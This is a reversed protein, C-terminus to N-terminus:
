SGFLALRKMCIEFHDSGRGAPTIGDPLSLSYNIQKRECQECWSALRSIRRETDGAGASDQWSLRVDHSSKTSDFERTQLGLGRAASKWAISSPRDGPQYSRLSAFEGENARKSTANSGEENAPAASGEALDPVPSECAPWVLAQNDFHMYGWTVVLGLPYESRLTLRGLPQWGRKDAEIALTLPKSEAPAISATTAVGNDTSIELGYCSLKRQNTVSIDFPTTDGVRGRQSECKEVTIGAVNRYTALLTASFLGTLFFSLAYGLSLAYNVSTILMILLSFLFMWGRSTPLVYVREHTFTLPTQDKAKHRFFRQKIEGVSAQAPGNNISEPVSDTNIYSRITSERNAFTSKRTTDVNQLADTPM